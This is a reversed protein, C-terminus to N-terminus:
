PTGKPKLRYVRQGRQVSRGIGRAELVRSVLAERRPNRPKWGLVQAISAQVSRRPVKGKPDPEWHLDLAQNVKTILDQAATTRRKLELIAQELYM